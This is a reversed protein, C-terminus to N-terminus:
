RHFKQIKKEVELCSSALHEVAEHTEEVHRQHIKLGPQVGNKTPQRSQKSTGPLKYITKLHIIVGIYGM